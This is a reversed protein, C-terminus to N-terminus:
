ADRLAEVHECASPRLISVSQRARTIGVYATRTHQESRPSGWHARRSLDPALIVHDAEAGKVSHVTGTVLRPTARLAAGGRALCVEVPYRAASQTSARLSEQWWRVDLRFAPHSTTDVAGLLECLTQPPVTEGAQSEGFRDARCKAAILAKAGRQLVGQSRLPETWARLDEWTWLRAQAGWAAESPRLFALLRRAGRLPNWAGQAPRHPNHFPVARRRLEALVPALMYGCTALIMTQGELEGALECIAEPSTLTAELRRAQGQQQTPRYPAAGIEMQGAVRQALAHVERPVRHSQELLEHRAGLRAPDIARPDAGRWAYLAQRRDGALVAKECGRAWRMALALELASFDQAEDLLLVQPRAPHEPVDRAAREILDTFDLTATQAKFDQWLADYGREAESWAERPTLRARRNMVAAHLHDGAGQGTGQEGADDLGRAGSHAHAPHESSFERLREPTEALDPQGLARYAHAHLTGVLDDPVGTDRGAIEAAATKTLSAIVVSGAGREAVTAKCRRALTTTKGTGPPGEIFLLDGM